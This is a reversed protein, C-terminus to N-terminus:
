KTENKRFDPYVVKSKKEANTDPWNLCYDQWGSSEVKVVNETIYKPDLDDKQCTHKHWWGDQALSGLNDEEDHQFWVEDGLSSAIDIKNVIIRGEAVANLKCYLMIGIIQDVPEDPLTCVNVGIAQLLQAQTEVARNIFIVHELEGYVFAKIREMAINISAADSVATTMQLSVDYSNLQLCEDYYIGGQFGMSYQLNVNM